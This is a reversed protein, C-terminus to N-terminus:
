SKMGVLPYKNFFPIIEKKLVKVNRLTVRTVNNPKNYVGGKNKFFFNISDLLLKDDTSQTINFDIALHLGWM